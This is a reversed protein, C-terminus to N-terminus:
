LRSLPTLHVKSSFNQYGTSFLPAQARHNLSHHRLRLRALFKLRLHGTLNTTWAPLILDLILNTTFRETMLRETMLYLDEGVGLLSVNVDSFNRRKLDGEGQTAVDQLRYILPWPNHDDEKLLDQNELVQYPKTLLNVMFAAGCSGPPGITMNNFDDELRIDQASQVELLADIRDELDDFM